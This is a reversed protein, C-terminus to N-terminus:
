VVRENFGGLGILMTCQMEVYLVEKWSVWHRKMQEVDVIYGGAVETGSDFEFVQIM